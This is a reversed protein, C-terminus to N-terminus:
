RPKHVSPYVYGKYCIIWISAGPRVCVLKVKQLYRYGEEEELLTVNLLEALSLLVASVGAEVEGKLERWVVGSRSSM